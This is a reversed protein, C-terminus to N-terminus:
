TGTQDFDFFDIHSERIVESDRIQYTTAAYGEKHMHFYEQLVTVPETLSFSSCASQCAFEFKSLGPSVPDGYLGGLVDGLFFGGLEHERPTLSYYVRLGSSDTINEVLEPNNYHVEIRFSQMGAGPGMTLGVNDPPVFPLVGPSWSFVPYTYESGPLCESGNSAQSSGLAVAHHVFARSEDSSLVVIAIATISRNAPIGQTLIDSNWSFCFNVYNTEIAELTYNPARLEFYGDATTELRKLVLEVEDGGGYWRLSGQARNLGHYSATTSEGWAAIIRQAAIYSDVDYFIDRDQTDGTRLKRYGEFILFGGESRSNVFVWDQCEDTIPLLEDLVHADRLQGPNATEFIVMDAGKMGGTEALGFGVWGTARAAVAIYVNEDDVKWHVAIGQTADSSLADYCVSANYSSGNAAVWDLYPASDSGGFCEDSALALSGFALTVVAVGNLLKWLNLSMTITTMQKQAPNSCAFPCSRTL